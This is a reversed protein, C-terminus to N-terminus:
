FSWNGSRLVGGFVGHGGRRTSLGLVPAMKTHADVQAPDLRARWAIIDNSSGHLLEIEARLAACAPVWPEVALHM